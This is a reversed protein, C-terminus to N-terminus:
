TRYLLPAVATTAITVSFHAIRIEMKASTAAAFLSVAVVVFIVVFGIHAM